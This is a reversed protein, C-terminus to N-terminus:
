ARQCWDRCSLPATDAPQGRAGKFLCVPGSAQPQQKRTRKKRRSNATEKVGEEVRGITLARTEQGAARQAWKGAGSGLKEVPRKCRLCCCRPTVPWNAETKSHVTSVRNQLPIESRLPHASYFAYPQRLQLYFHPKLCPVSNQHSESLARSTCVHIKEPLRTHANARHRLLLPPKSAM